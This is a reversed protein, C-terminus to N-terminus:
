NELIEVHTIKAGFNLAQDYESFWIDLHYAGSRENMRDEVVFVKDGYLEPIRVETGFPLGNNAVIGDKVDSGSATIFPTDDTQWVTSSYGTILMKVTRVPKVPLSPDSIPVVSNNQVMVPGEELSLAPEPNLSLEAEARSITLVVFIGAFLISVVLILAKKADKNLNKHNIFMFENLFGTM